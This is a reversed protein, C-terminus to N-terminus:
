ATKKSLLESLINLSNVLTDNELKNVIAIGEKELKEYMEGQEKSVWYGELVVIKKGAQHAKIIEPVEDTNTPHIIATEIGNKNMYDLLNRPVSKRWEIPEMEAIVRALSHFSRALKKSEIILLSHGKLNGYRERM